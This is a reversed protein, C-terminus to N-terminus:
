RGNYEEEFWLYENEDYSIRYLYLGDSPATKLAKTRDKSELRAKFDDGTEGMLASDLMTGVMSRVQRYLFANGVVKYRLLPFGYNDKELTWESEYIDRVKSECMDKSSCFTSFDHTGVLLSAYSNLRSVDPLARLPTIRGSDFPLMDSFAKILYRYERAMATFRAHFVSEPEWSSLVRISSPLKTNLIISFKDAPIESSTDFHAVQGLAHVGSDTRGSGQLFVDEGTVSSLVKEIEGEVSEANDQVQWGHWKTGDYSITLAIRRKDQPMVVEPRHWDLRSM